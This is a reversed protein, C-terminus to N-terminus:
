RRSYNGKSNGSNKSRDRSCPSVPRDYKWWPTCSNEVLGAGVPDASVAVVIPITSTARKAAQTPPTDVTVIVDVNLNVLELALSDLRNLEGDADRYVIDINIGEIWGLDHLKQRFAEIQALVSADKKRTLVGIQHIKKKSDQQQGLSTRPLLLMGVGLMFLLNRRTNMIIVANACESHGSDIIATESPVFLVFDHDRRWLADFRKFSLQHEPSLM